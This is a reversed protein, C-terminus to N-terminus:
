AQRRCLCVQMRSGPGFPGRSLDGFRSVLELGSASLLLPLEQPFISRLIMPVVWADRREPSSIYWTGRNVQAASDYVQAGEVSLVGFRSTNVEMVPVREGAARALLRVDPNFVDFAFVGDPALQHRVANLVALLDPTSLVHLLSNRAVFILKFNRRLAFDRMDGQLFTVRANQASARRKAADLM